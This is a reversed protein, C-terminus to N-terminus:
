GSPQPGNFPRRPRARQQGLLEDSAALGHDVHGRLQGGPHPQQVVVVAILGIGVVGAGVAM